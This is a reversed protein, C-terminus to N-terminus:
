RAASMARKAAMRSLKADKQDRFLARVEAREQARKIQRTPVEPMIPLVRGAAIQARYRKGRGWGTNERRPTLSAGSVAARTAAQEAVLAAGSKIISGLAALIGRQNKEM